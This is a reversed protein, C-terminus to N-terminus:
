ASYARWFPVAEEPKPSDTLCNTETLGADIMWQRLTEKNIKLREREFLKESALTPGFDQYTKQVVDM